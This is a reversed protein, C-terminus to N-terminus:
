QDHLESEKKKLSLLKHNHLHVINQPHISQAKNKINNGRMTKM